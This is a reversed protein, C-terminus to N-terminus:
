HPTSVADGTFIRVTSGFRHYDTFRVENIHQEPGVRDKLEMVLNHVESVAVGRIPCIFEKGSISVTGYQVAIASVMVPDSESLDAEVTIRDISGTVPDIYLEGHYAPKDHFGLEPDDASKRYCCFDVLYHSASRPVTYRFVAVRAGTESLQWRNWTVSGQVSDTLITKLVPGFEGWTSLGTPPAADAGTSHAYVSETVEHGGRYAIERRIERRLHLEAKPEKRKTQEPINDFSDTTRIALFDPLRHLAGDVYEAAASVIQRQANVDPAAQAPLESVPPACFISADALLRLQEITKPGPGTENGIRALTQQTLQESLQVSSLRDAIESDSEKSARKSTLFQELQAVTVRTAAYAPCTLGVICVLFALRRLRYVRSIPIPILDIGGAM